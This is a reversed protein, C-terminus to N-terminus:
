TSERKLKGRKNIHERKKQVGWRKENVGSQVEVM